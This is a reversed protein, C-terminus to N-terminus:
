RLESAYIRALGAAASVPFDRQVRDLYELAKSNDGLRHFVVGMKYLADPAKNHSPYLNVV